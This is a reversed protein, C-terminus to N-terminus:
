PYRKSVMSTKVLQEKKVVLKIHHSSPIGTVWSLTSYSSHETSVVLEECIKQGLEM